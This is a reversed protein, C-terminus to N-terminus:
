LTYDYEVNMEKENHINMYALSLCSISKEWKCEYKIQITEVIM